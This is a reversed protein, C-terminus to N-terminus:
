FPPGGDLGNGSAGGFGRRKWEEHLENWRANAIDRDATEISQPEQDPRERVILFRTGPLNERTTNYALLRDQGNLIYLTIMRHVGDEGNTPFGTPPTPSLEKPVPMELSFENRTRDWFVVVNAFIEELPFSKELSNRPANAAMVRLTFHWREVESTDNQPWVMAHSFDNGALLSNNSTEKRILLIPNSSCRPQIVNPATVVAANFNSSQRYANHDLDFSQADAVIVRIQHIPNLRDNDVTLTLGRTEQFQYHRIRVTLDDSTKIVLEEVAPAYSSNGSRPPKGRGAKYAQDIQQQSGMFQSTQEEPRQSTGDTPGNQAPVAPRGIQVTHRIDESEHKLQFLYKPLNPSALSLESDNEAGKSLRRWEWPGELIQNENDFGMWRGTMLEEKPMIRIHFVGHFNFGEKVDQYNGSIFHPTIRNGLFLYEHGRWEFKGAVRTGVQNLHMVIEETLDFPRDGIQWVSAWTGTLSTRSRIWVHGLVRVLLVRVPDDLLPQVLVALALGFIAGIAAILIDKGALLTEAPPGAGDLIDWAM